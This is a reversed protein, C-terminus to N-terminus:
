RAQLSVCPARRHSHVFVRTPRPDPPRPGTRANTLRRRNMRSGRRGISGGHGGTRRQEALFRDSLAAARDLPNSVATGSQEGAGLARLGGGDNEAGGPYPPLDLGAARHALMLVVIGVHAIDLRVLPAYERESAVSRGLPVAKSSGQGVRPVHECRDYFHIGRRRSREAVEPYEAAIHHREGTGSKGTAGPFNDVIRERPRPQPEPYTRAAM